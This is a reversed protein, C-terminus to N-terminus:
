AVAAAAAAPTRLGLVEGVAVVVDPDFQTGACAELEAFAAEAPLAAAFPRGSVLAVYADCALVVRAALPIATGALGDPYGTGDFREHTARVVPALAALAPAAALIREGAVPHRRVLERESESLPGPKLLVDDPVALKGVDALLAAARLREREEAPIGLAVATADALRAVATAHRELAVSREELSQVLVGATQALLSHPSRRKRAYMRHDALRLADSPSEGEEGLRVVGYSATVWFGDGDEALAAALRKVADAGDDGDLLVCFEDGGMRYAGGPAAAASLRRGIRELLADGALHGFTDNYLKFGDLDFLVLLAPGNEPAALRAGLDDVLRRRNWLGTVADTGADRQAAAVLGLKENFITALRVVVLVLAGAALVLAATNVRVFHDYVLVALALLAFGSPLLLMRVGDAGAARARGGPLWAAAALVVAALVWGLDVLSGVTYADVAVQHVYVADAVAFCAMGAVLLSWTRGLQWGSAAVAGILLAVLLLDGVPYALNVAVIGLREDRTAQLVPDLVLASGAAALALACVLGDLRLGHRIRGAQLLLVGAYALPYFGLWLADAASFAPLAAHDLAFTWYVSGLTWALLAAGLLMWPLERRAFCLAAAGLLVAHYLWDDAVTELRPDGLGTAFRVALLVTLAGLIGLLAV